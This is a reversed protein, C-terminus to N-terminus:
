FCLKILAYGSFLDAPVTIEYKQDGKKCIPIEKEGDMEPSAIIAKCNAGLEVQELKVTLQPLLKRQPDTDVFQPITEDIDVYSDNKSVMGTTNVLHLAMGSNVRYLTPIIDEASEVTVWRGALLAVM